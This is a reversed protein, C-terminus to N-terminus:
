FYFCIFILIVNESKNEIFKQRVFFHFDQFLIDILILIKLIFHIFVITFRCGM